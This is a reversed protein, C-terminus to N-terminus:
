KAVEKMTSAGSFASVKQGDITGIALISNPENFVTPSELRARGKSDQVVVWAGSAGKFNGVVRWENSFPTPPAAQQSTQNTQGSNASQSAAGSIPKSSQAKDAPAFFKIINTVAIYGVIVLAICGFWLKKSNLINQRSDQILEKGNGGEYSSYLPFVAPDYKKVETKVKLKANTKYGEWIEVRYTKNFGLSKLKTTRITMEVVYKVKRHLDSIDQTMLTLDCSVKTDPHVYHRHKRFFIFHNPQIESDAGWFRWAEDICVLDGPKVFTNESDLPPCPAFVSSRPRDSFYDLEVTKWGKEGAEVLCSGVDLDADRIRMLSSLLVDYSTKTFTRKHTDTWSQVFFTFSDLPIWDAIDFNVIKQASGHPLFDPKSVDEDKCHDVHGLREFPVGKKEHAYMRVEDSDIGDVNTVVRRGAAVADVIVTSVCEYSKGSGMLGTYVNISM